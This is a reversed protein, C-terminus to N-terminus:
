GDSLIDGYLNPAVIVDFKQPERFLRYVMSDVLQEELRIDKYDKHVNIM